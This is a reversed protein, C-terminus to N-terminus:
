QRSSHLFYKLKQLNRDKSIHHCVTQYIRVKKGGDEHHFKKSKMYVARSFRLIDSAPGADELETYNFETIFM